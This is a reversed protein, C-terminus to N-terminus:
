ERAKGDVSIALKLLDSSLKLKAQSARLLNVSFQLRSDTKIFSIMGDPQNETVVLLGPRDFPPATTSKVDADAGILVVECKEISQIEDIAAVSVIHEGIKRGEVAKLKAAVEPNQFICFRINASVGLSGEEPWRTYKAFNFLYAAKLESESGEAAFVTAVSFHHLCAVAVAALYLTRVTNVIFTENCNLRM